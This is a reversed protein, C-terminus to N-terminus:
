FHPHMFANYIHSYIQQYITTATGIPGRDMKLTPFIQLKVFGVEGVIGFYKLFITLRNIRFFFM